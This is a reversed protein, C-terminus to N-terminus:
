NKDIRYFPELEQAIRDVNQAACAARQRSTQYTAGAVHPTVVVNPLQFVPAQPNPPEETFVDLGSGGLKGGSGGLKGNVLAQYLAQEDVLGGRAVNILYATPKMLAIRRADIIHRTESNLHLHLSLFDVESIIQDIDSPSGMFDPQLEALIQSEIVRVDIVLIKMGFAKARRALEQGSAGLGIIGLSQNALESGLPQYLVGSAFNDASKRYRRALMLIFMMASEALAASSFQGPCNAVPIKLGRIYELDFHDFGTGM